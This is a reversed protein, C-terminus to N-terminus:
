IYIFYLGIIILVICISKIGLTSMRIDEKIFKPYLHSLAVGGVLLFIPQVGGVVTVLAVSALTIAYAYASNALTNLILNIGMVGWTTISITKIQKIFAIRYKRFLLLLLAGIGAGIMQYSLIIWFNEETLSVKFLVGIM